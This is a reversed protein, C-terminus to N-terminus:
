YYITLSFNNSIIVNDDKMDYRDVIYNKIDLIDINDNNSKELEFCEVDAIVDKDEDIFNVVLLIAFHTEKVKCVGSKIVIQYENLEPEGEKLYERLLDDNHAEIPDKM